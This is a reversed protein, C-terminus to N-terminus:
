AIVVLAVVGWFVMSWLVGALLGTCGEADALSANLDAVQEAESRHDCPLM